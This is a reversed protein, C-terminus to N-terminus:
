GNSVMKVLKATEGGNLMDEQIAVLVDNKSLQPRQGPLQVYVGVNQQPAQVVTGGQRQLAAAGNANLDAMFGHGVSDVAKKRVVWEDKAIKSYVSDRTSVGNTVRGGGLYGKIGNAPAGGNFNGFAGAIANQNVVIGSSSGGSGGLAAMGFNLIQNFIQKAAFEAALQTMYNIIGKAFNGFAGLASRSGTLIDSFFTTLGGHVQQLAGGMNMILTENLSAGLNNAEQYAAMAQAAGDKLTTPVLGGASLSAALVARETNLDDLSKTLENIQATIQPVDAGSSGLQSQLTGIAGQTGAILSPLLALRERDANEQALGVLRQRHQLVYDPVKGQLSTAGLGSVVGQAMAVAAQGPQLARDFALQAADLQKKVGKILADTIKQQYDQVNQAIEQEVQDMKLEWQPSGEAIGKTALEEEAATRLQENLATLAKSANASAADFAEGTVATAVSKLALRLDKAYLQAQAEALSSQYDQASTTTSDDGVTAGRRTNVHIHRGSGQNKGRGTEFQVFANIGRQKYEAQMSAALRRADDDSMNGVRFDRAIGGNSHSSTDGTAPTKGAAHLANQEAKTRVGSGLTLGRAIGVSDIDNQVVARRRRNEREQKALEKEEEKADKLEQATPKMAATLQGIIQKLITISQDLYGRSSEPASKVQGELTALLPNAAALMAQGERKRTALSKGDLTAAGNQLTSLAREVSVGQRSGAASALLSANRLREADGIGVALRGAVIAADNLKGAFANGTQQLYRAAEALGQAFYPWSPNSLTKRDVPRLAAMLGSNGRIDGLQANLLAQDSSNQQQQAAQQGALAQGLFRNQEGRYQNMANILDLYGNRLQGLYKHLGQFRSTLTITEARTQKTNGILSSQQLMLRDLEKDVGVLTQQYSAAKQQATNIEEAFEAVSVSASKAGKDLSMMWDGLGTVDSRQTVDTMSLINFARAFIERGEEETFFGTKPTSKRIGNIEKQLDIFTSLLNKATMLTPELDTALDQTSVNVFRNWEATLSDMARANATAAAGQQAFSIQLDDIVDRNNKLVLYAAAARTELGEYAQSAGFGKQALTDLVANLGRTNVDVDKQSIGLRELEFSLKETPSQLDVLFQRLGTGITSGSRVGGQAIAGVTALLQELGINQEYATAGVYQIAQGVQAVTLKTRNLAETMLDAIRAAESAQLQFSGLAATVLNVAEDPTSGSATALTTVSKLVDTMESASIGAQALTQSIKVLDTVAYRSNAGVSFISATLKSMEGDTSNSIAQLKALEDELRVVDGISQSVANFAGYAGMAAGGYVATRAFAAAAYGPSLINQLASPKAAPTAAARGQQLTLREQAKQQAILAREVRNLEARYAEEHAILTKLAQIQAPDTETKRAAKYRNLNVLSRDRAATLDNLNKIAQASTIMDDKRAALRAARVASDQALQDRTAAERLARLGKIQDEERKIANLNMAAVQGMGVKEDASLTFSPSAQKLARGYDRDRTQQQNTAAKFQATNLRTQATALANLQRERKNLEANLLKENSLRTALGRLVNPDSEGRQAERLARVRRASDARVDNLKQQSEILRANAAIQERVDDNRAKAALKRADDESKQTRRRNESILKEGDAEIKAQRKLSEKRENEQQRFFGRSAELDKKQQDYGLGSRTLTSMQKQLQSLVRLEKNLELGAGKLGKAADGGIAQVSKRVKEIERQIYDFAGRIQATNADMEVPIEERENAM